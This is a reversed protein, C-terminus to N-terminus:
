RRLHDYYKGYEMFTMASIGTADGSTSGLFMSVDGSAQVTDSPHNLIIVPKVTTLTNEAVVPKKTPALMCYEDEHLLRIENRGLRRRWAYMWYIKGVFDRNETDPPNGLLYVDNLYPALYNGACSISYASQEGDMYFNVIGDQNSWTWGVTRDVDLGPIPAGTNNYNDVTTTDTAVVVSLRGTGQTVMFRMSYNRDMPADIATNAYIRSCTGTNVMRRIKAVVTFEEAMSMYSSTGLYIRKSGGPNYIGDRDYTIGNHVCPNSLVNYGSVDITAEPVDHFLTAWCLGRAIEADHIIDCVHSYENGIIM